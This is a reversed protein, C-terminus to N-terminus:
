RVLRAHQPVQVLPDADVTRPSHGRFPYCLHQRRQALQPLVSTAIGTGIFSNHATSDRTPPVGTNCSGGSLIEAPRSLRLRSVRNGPACSIM